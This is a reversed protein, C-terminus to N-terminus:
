DSCIRLHFTSNISLFLTRKLLTGISTFSDRTYMWGQSQLCHLRRISCRSSTLAASACHLCLIGSEDGQTERSRRSWRHSHGNETWFQMNVIILSLLQVMLLTVPTLMFIKNVNARYEDTLKQYHCPRGTSITWLIGDIPRHTSSQTITEEVLDRINHRCM